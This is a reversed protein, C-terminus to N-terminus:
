SISAGALAGVDDEVPRREVDDRHGLAFLQAGGELHGVGIRPDADDHQPGAALMKGAAALDAPKEGGRGVM